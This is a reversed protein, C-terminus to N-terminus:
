LVEVLEHREHLFLRRILFNLGSVPWHAMMEARAEETSLIRGTARCEQAFPEISTPRAARWSTSWRKPHLNAHHSRFFAAAPWELPHECAWAFPRALVGAAWDGDRMKQVVVGEADDRSCASSFGRAPTSATGRYVRLLAVMLGSSSARRIQWRAISPSRAGT